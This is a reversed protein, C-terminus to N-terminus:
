EKEWKFHKTKNSRTKKKKNLKSLCVKGILTLDGDKDLVGCRKMAKIEVFSLTRGSALRNLIVWQFHNFKDRINGLQSMKAFDDYSM